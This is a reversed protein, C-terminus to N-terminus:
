GILKFGNEDTLYAGDGDTLTALAGRERCLLSVEATGQGAALGLAFSTTSLRSGYGVDAGSASRWTLDYHLEPYEVRGYETWVAAEDEYRHTLPSLDDGASPLAKTRGYPARRATLSTRAIDRGGKVFAVEAQLTDVLRLDVWIDPYGAKLLWASRFSGAQRAEGGLRVEMTVGEPLEELPEGGRCLLVSAKLLYGKGDAYPTLDGAEELGNAQLYEHLLLRDTHERYAAQRHSCSASWQEGGAAMCGVTLGPAYLGVAQGGRRVTCSLILEHFEGPAFSRRLTLIGDTGLTYGDTWAVALPLGDVTWGYSASSDEVEEGGQRLAPTLVTERRTGEQQVAPTGSLTVSLGLAGPARLLRVRRLTDQQQHQIDM